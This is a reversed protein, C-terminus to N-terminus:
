YSIICCLFSFQKGNSIFLFKPLTEGSYLCDLIPSLSLTPHIASHSPLSVSPIKKTKNKTKELRKNHFFNLCVAFNFSNKCGVGM